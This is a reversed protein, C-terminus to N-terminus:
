DTSSAPSLEDDDEISAIKGLIPAAIFSIFIWTKLIKKIM